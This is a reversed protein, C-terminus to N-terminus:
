GNGREAIQKLAMRKMAKAMGQKEENGEFRAMPDAENWIEQLSEADAAACMAEKMKDLFWDDSEGEDFEDGAVVEGELPLEPEPAAITTHRHVPVDASLEKPPVPPAPRVSVHGNSATFREAEDPDVIGAFGFAYRAAQILAKHRLMRRPWQKWTSTDRRCETMYETASTPRSRDKRYIRCTVSVLNGTADLHDDFEFGDCQPHSNILNAWGDVSVIPQIGGGQKPFAYIEKTIPNLGYEKAVMLFAAFEENTANKPVVTARITAAFTQPEMNYRAAMTAILSPRPSDVTAIANM